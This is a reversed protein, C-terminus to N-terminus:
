PYVKTAQSLQLLHASIDIHLHTRVLPIGYYRCPIQQGWIHNDSIYFKPSAVINIMM